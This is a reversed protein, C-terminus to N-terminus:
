CVDVRTICFQQDRNKLWKFSSFYEYKSCIYVELITNNSKSFIYYLYIKLIETVNRWMKKIDM